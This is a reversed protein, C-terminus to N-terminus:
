ERMTDTTDTASPGQIDCVQYPAPAVDELFRLDYYWEKRLSLAITYSRTAQADALRQRLWEQQKLRETPPLVRVHALWQEFQDLVIVLRQGSGRGDILTDLDQALTPYTQIVTYRVAPQRRKIEDNVLVTLLTSKGAGSPGIVVPVTVRRQRLLVSVVHKTEAPRPWVSNRDLPRFPGFVTTEEPVKPFHQHAYRWLVVGMALLLFLLAAARAWRGEALASLLPPLLPIAGLILSLWAVATVVRPSDFRSPATV